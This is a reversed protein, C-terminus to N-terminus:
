PPLSTGAAPPTAPALAYVTAVSNQFLKPLPHRVRGPVVLYSAGYARGIAQLTATDFTDYEHTDGKLQTMRRRWEFAFAVDFFQQTGDKWEGVIARESFVRFGDRYPPTLFVADRPTHDRVWAQVENWSQGRTAEVSRLFLAPLVYLCVVAAAAALARRPWRGALARVLLFLGLCTVILPDALLDAFRASLQPLVDQPLAVAGTRAAAFLALAGAAVVGPGWRQGSGLLYCALALAVFSPQQLVFALACAVAAVRAAIGWHWSRVLLDAVYLLVLYTLWRTSRLLQARIAAPLPLWEAFVFGALCLVVIALAFHLTTRRYVSADASAWALVGVALLLVYGGYVAAPQSLPFTHLASRERMIDLWLPETGSTLGQSSGALWVLAPLALLAFLGLAALLRPLGRARWRLVGDLAMMAVVYLAYLGHLNAALGCLAFAPLFRGRLHLYLAWLLLPTAVHGHQLRSALSSEGALSLPNLLYLGCALLASARSGFLLLSLACLAALTAAHFVVYVAFYPLEVQGAVRALTAMIPFFYTAYGDISTVLLDGAYLSRDMYHKLIPIQVGHNGGGFRYGIWATSATALLLLYVGARWAELRDPEDRPATEKRRSLPHSM